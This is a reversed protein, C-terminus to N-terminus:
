KVRSCDAHVVRGPDVTSYGRGLGYSRADATREGRSGRGHRRCDFFFRSFKQGEHRRHRGKKDVVSARHHHDATRANRRKQVRPRELEWSRRSRSVERRGKEPWGGGHAIVAFRNYRFKTACRTRSRTVISGDRREQTESWRSNM